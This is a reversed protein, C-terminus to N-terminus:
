RTAGVATSRNARVVDCVPPVSAHDGTIKSELFRLGLRLFPSVGGAHNSLRHSICLIAHAGATDEAMEHAFHVSPVRVYCFHAVNREENYQGDSGRLPDEHRWVRLFGLRLCM